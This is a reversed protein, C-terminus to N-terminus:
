NGVIKNIKQVYIGALEQAIEMSSGESYVRCLPEEADPLVLAWGDQHYVKIGDLLELKDPKEEILSRIVLGKSEWPVTVAQKDVFFDPIEQVLTSLKIKKQACFSLIKFLTAVADFNLLLPALREKQSDSPTIIQELFDPDVTKTRVVESNYKFALDDIVKSATVPVVVPNSGDKLAVLALLATLKDEQIVQGTEDVLIIHEGNPDIIVGVHAKNEVVARCLEPLLKQYDQWSRPSKNVTNQTIRALIIETKLAIKFILEELNNQDYLLVVKYHAAHLAALALGQCINDLYAQDTSSILKVPRIQLNDVRRYDAKALKNAIKREKSRSINSGQANTFIITIKDPYRHSVKIHIGAQCKLTRVAYRHVPMISKGLELVQMGSSQLGASVATKIMQCVPYSDSSLAIKTGTSMISGFAASVRTALGPTIDINAIGTIGEIGFLNKPCNDSWVISQHVTAGTDVQKNPWLKVDPKILGREKIVSDNGVVAGEYVAADAFVRVGAGLVAGRVASRLGLYVGNGLVSRKISSGVEVRCGAGLVTDPEIKVDLGIESGSGILVPGIINATHNINVGEGVWVQSAIERSPVPIQVKGSLVDRHAQLYHGLNGIDCWYGDLVVGYMPKNDKLLLPFLDQSFDFKQGPQFYNLVAPELIYIGTNVTDSFVEGWGPKELFRSISGDPATIVVGYELPCAVRTLILTALSGQQQHFKVAATLDLDTLADGSIVMFTENLFDGANKVSGATGLPTEETFYRMQVGFEAGNGFHDKVVEPLYQLTVGINEFHHKKLLDVIHEMIPRNIVPMMPKPCNCTLPRLRSGEGGAMIIAKM